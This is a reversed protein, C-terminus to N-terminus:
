NKLQAIRNKAFATYIQQKETTKSALFKKYYKIANKKDRLKSDYLNALLYYLTSGESFQLAKQYALVAKKYKIQKENSDAIEGYYDAINPSIGIDIAKKLYEIAKPQNKLEKYALGTIYYSTESQEIPSIIILAAVCSDYDKLNYYATGLKTSVYGSHDGLKILKLCTNKTEEFKDQSANLRLMSILLVINDPDEAIARNLVKEAQEYKKLNVLIDSLDAAVDPEAPNLKNAKQLYNIMDAQEGKDFSIKALQKYVIFNNTDKEIIKKYFVAAKLGNGRRLNIGGLNFLVTTNTSDSNYVRLYYNEADVLKGAMQSAYALKALVKMDTVPESYINKLYDAAEVYRQNQYYELLIADDAKQTQQAFAPLNLFFTILILSIIKM